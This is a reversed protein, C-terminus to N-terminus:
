SVNSDALIQEESSSECRNASAHRRSRPRRWDAVFTPPPIISVAPLQMGAKRCTPSHAKPERGYALRLTFLYALTILLPLTHNAAQFSPLHRSFGQFALSRPRKWRCATQDRPFPGSDRCFDDSAPVVVAQRDPRNFAICALYLCNNRTRFRSLCKYLKLYDIGIKSVSFNSDPSRCREMPTRRCSCRHKRACIVSKARQRKPFNSMGRPQKMKASCEHPLIPDLPRPPEWRM